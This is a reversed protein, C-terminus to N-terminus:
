FLSLQTEEYGQKYDAIIDRMRYLMGLKSCEETFSAHLQKAKPSGCSYQPGFQRQYRRSLGPFRADLQEYFYARQSDRLTVGFAPYVFRAGSRSAQRVIARINEEGDTIFPLTPMLLVGCPIGAASLAQLASFRRSSPPANPEILRALEDAAATITIKVIAPAQERIAQLADIDRTVLTSKTAIAVGFGHQRLLFLAQRTLQLEAELPNYPDSMSGTAVVGKTTKSRLDNHILALANEKIKVAAFDTNGYCDSRSDCYICGHSCGRYINMNYAAGFWAESKTRTVLTKAPISHPQQM